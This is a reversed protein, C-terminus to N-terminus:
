RHVKTIESGLGSFTM